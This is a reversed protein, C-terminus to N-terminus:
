KGGALDNGSLHEVTEGTDVFTRTVYTTAYTWLIRMRGQGANVFRHPVSAPVYTTDLTQLQYTKGDIECLAEGELITVTEEVNHTHLRIAAGVPFTTIGSTFGQTGIWSGALPKTSVGGGRAVTQIEEFRLIQPESM